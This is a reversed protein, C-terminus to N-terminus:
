ARGASVTSPRWSSYRKRSKRWKMSTQIRVVFAGLGGVVEAPDDDVIRGLRRRV